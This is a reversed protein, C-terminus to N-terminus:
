DDLRDVLKQAREDREEQEEVEGDLEQHLPQGYDPVRERKIARAAVGLRNEVGEGPGHNGVGGLRAQGAFGAGARQRDLGEGRDRLQSPFRVLSLSWSRAKVPHEFVFLRGSTARIECMGM